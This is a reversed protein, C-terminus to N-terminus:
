FLEIEDDDSSNNNRFLNELVLADALLSKDLFHIDSADQSVFLANCWGNLGATIALFIDSYKQYSRNLDLSKFINALKNTIFKINYFEDINELVSSFNEFQRAVVAIHESTTQNLLANVYIDIEENIDLIKDISTQIDVPYSNLFEKASIVDYEKLLLTMRDQSTPIIEADIHSSPAKKVDVERKVHHLFDQEGNEDYCNKLISDQFQYMAKLDIIELVVRSFLKIILEKNLPTPIYGSVGINMLEVMLDPDSNKSVIIINKRPAIKKITRCFDLVNTDALNADTVIIDFYGSEFMKMANDAYEEVVVNGFYNKLFNGLKLRTGAHEEVYLIKISRADEILTEIKFEKM